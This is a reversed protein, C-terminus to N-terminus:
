RAPRNRADVEAAGDAGGDLRAMEDLAAPVRHRGAHREFRCLEASEAGKQLLPQPVLDGRRPGRAPEVNVASQRGAAGRGLQDLRQLPGTGEALAIRLRDEREWGVGEGKGLRGPVSM